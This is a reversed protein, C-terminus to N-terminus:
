ISLDRFNLSPSSATELKNLSMLDSIYEIRAYVEEIFRINM